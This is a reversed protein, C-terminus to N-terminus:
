TILDRFKPYLAALSSERHVKERGAEGRARLDDPTEFARALGQVWGETDNALEHEGLVLSPNVGVPSALVPLGAAQYLLIKFGCKGRTFPTDYLPMIGLTARKLLAKESEPDWPEFRVGDPCPEPARDAMVVLHTKPFQKRHHEFAPFFLDLNKLNTRSGIWAVCNPDRDSWPGPSFVDTDVPTPLVTAKKPDATAEALTSNGALVSDAAQTIQAFRTQNRQSGEGDVYIADDVDFVLRTCHRRLDSVTRPGFLKKQM